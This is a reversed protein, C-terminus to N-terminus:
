YKTYEYSIDKTISSFISMLIHEFEIIGQKQSVIKNQYLKRTVETAEKRAIKYKLMIDKINPNNKIVLRYFNKYGGLAVIEKIGANVALTIDQYSLSKGTPHNHILYNGDMLKIEDLSFVVKDVLGKKELIIKGASDFIIAKEFQNKTDSLIKDRFVEYKAYELHKNKKLFIHNQSIEIVKIIGVDGIAKAKAYRNQQGSDSLINNEMGSNYGL